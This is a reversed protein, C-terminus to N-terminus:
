ILKGLRNQRHCDNSLSKEKRGVWLSKTINEGVTKNVLPFSLASQHVGPLLGFDICWCNYLETNLDCFERRLTQQKAALVEGSCYWLVEFNVNQSTSKIQFVISLKPWPKNSRTPMQLFDLYVPFETHFLKIYYLKLVMLRYVLLYSYHCAYGNASQFRIYQWFLYRQCCYSIQIHSTPLPSNTFAVLDVQHTTLCM